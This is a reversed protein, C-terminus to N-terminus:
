NLAVLLKRWKEQVSDASFMKNLHDIYLSKLKTYEKSSSTKAGAKLAFAIEEKSFKTFYHGFSGVTEVHQPIQSLVPVCGWSMGELPPLGFGEARSASLVIRSTKYLEEIEDDSPSEVFKVDKGFSNSRLDAILEDTQWGPQGAIVLKWAKDLLGTKKAYHFSTVALEIEKRPEISNVMVVQKKKYVRKSVRPVNIVCPITHVNLEQIFLNKFEESSAETDMVWCIEKGLMKKLGNAFAAVAIEDFLYPHTIPLVDHLRVIHHTGKTVSIPDIQQQIYYNASKINLRFNGLRTPRGFRSGLSLPSILINKVRDPDIGFIKELVYRKQKNDVLYPTVNKKLSLAQLITLFREVRGPLVARGPNLRIAKGFDSSKKLWQNRKSVRRSSFGKPSLLIELEHGDLQSLCRAVAITDRPIGSKGRTAYSGDYVIRKTTMSISGKM